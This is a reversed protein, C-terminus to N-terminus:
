PSALEVPLGQGHTQAICAERKLTASQTATVLTEERYLVTQAFMQDAPYRSVRSDILNEDLALHGKGIVRVWEGPNLILMTDAHDDTGYLIAHGGTNMGWHGDAEIWLDIHLASYAFKQAPDKPQLDALNPSFPIRIPASGTNEVTIEFRPEDGAKYHTGDLSLLSTHLTGSQHAPDLCSTTQETGSHGGSVPSTAEPRRLGVRAEVKTLDLFAVEQARCASILAAAM